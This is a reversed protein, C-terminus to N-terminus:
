KLVMMGITLLNLILLLLIKASPLIRMGPFNASFYNVGHWNLEQETVKQFTREPIPALMM